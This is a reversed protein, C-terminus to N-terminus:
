ILGIKQLNNKIKENLEEMFEKIETLCISCFYTDSYPYFVYKKWKKFYGITGIDEKKRKNKVIFDSDLTVYRDFILYKKTIPFDDNKM